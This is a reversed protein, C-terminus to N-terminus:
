IRRLRAAAPCLRGQTTQEAIETPHQAAAAGAAKQAAAQALQQLVELLVAVAVRCLGPDIVAGVLLTRRWLQLLRDPRINQGRQFFLGTQGLVFQEGAQRALQRGRDIFVGGLAADRVSLFKRIPIRQVMMMPKTAPTMALNMMGPSLSGVPNMRVVMRPITPAKTAVNRPCASPQYRGPSPAPRIPATTPAMM